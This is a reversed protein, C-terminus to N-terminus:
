EVKMGYRQMKLPRIFSNTIAPAGSTSLADSGTEQTIPTSIGMQNNVGSLAVITGKGLPPTFSFKQSVPDYSATVANGLKPISYNKGGVSVNAAASAKANLALATIDAGGADTIKLDKGNVVSVTILAVRTDNFANADSAKLTSRIKTQLALAL